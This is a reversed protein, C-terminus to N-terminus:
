VNLYEFEPYVDFLNTNHMQDQISMWEVFNSDFDDTRSKGLWQIIRKLNKANQYKVSNLYKKDRFRWHSYDLDDIHKIIDNCEVAIKLKQWDPLNAPDMVLPYQVFSVHLKSGLSTFFDVINRIRTVNLANVTCTAHLNVTGDAIHYRLQEEIYRWNDVLTTLKGRARVYEYTDTDADISVRCTVRKFKSWSDTIAKTMVHLNTNYELAINHEYGQLVQLMENHMPHMLPEGGTIKILKLSPAIQKLEEITTDPLENISTDSPNGAFKKIKDHLDDHKNIQNMWQSSFKPSCHRCQLNCLNGFRMEIEQPAVPDVDYAVDTYEELVTQRTSKIGADEMEWCSRCGAPRENNIHARRFDQWESSHWIDLLSTETYDGLHEVCRWCSTVSRNPKINLHIFPLPCVM